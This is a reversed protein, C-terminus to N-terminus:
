PFLQAVRGIHPYVFHPYSHTIWFQCVVSSRFVHVSNALEARAECGQGESRIVHEYRAEACCVWSGFGMTSGIHAHCHKSYRRIQTKWCRGEVLYKEVEM